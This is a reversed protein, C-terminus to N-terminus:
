PMNRCIDTRSEAGRSGAGSVGVGVIGDLGHYLVGPGGVPLIALIKTYANINKRLIIAM